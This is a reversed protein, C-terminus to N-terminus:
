PLVIEPWIAAAIARYAEAMRPGPIALPEPPLRHIRRNAVAPITRWVPDSALAEIRAQLAASGAPSTADQVLIVDPQAAVLAEMGIQGWNNGVAAAVNHSHARHLLDHHWTGAGPTWGPQNGAEIDLLLAVRPPPAARVPDLAADIAAMDARLRTLLALSRGPVGTVTGITAIDRLVDDWSQHSLVVVQARATAAIRQIVAPPTLDTALILDPRYQLITEVDPQHIEGVHAGAEVLAAAQAPFRCWRTVAMLHDGMDMAFLMETLSPALSIFHRPQRDFTLTRGADDTITLPYYGEPATQAHWPHQADQRKPRDPLLWLIGCGLVFGLGYVMLKRPKM